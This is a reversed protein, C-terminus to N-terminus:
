EFPDEDDTTEDSDILEQTTKAYEQDAESLKELPISITNGDIKM